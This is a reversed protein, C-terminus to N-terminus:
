AALAIQSPRTKISADNASPTPTKTEITQTARAKKLTHTQLRTSCCRRRTRETAPHTHPAKHTAHTHQPRTDSAPRTPLHTTTAHIRRLQATGKADRAVQNIRGTTM